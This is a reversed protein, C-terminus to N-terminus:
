PLGHIGALLLRCHLVAGPSIELNRPIIVHLRAFVQFKSSPVRFKSFSRKMEARRCSIIRAVPWVARGPKLRRTMLDHSQIEEDSRRQPPRQTVTIIPKVQRTLEDGHATGPHLLDCQAPEHIAERSRRGQEANDSEGRLKRDERQAKDAPDDAVSIRAAADRHPSLACRERM